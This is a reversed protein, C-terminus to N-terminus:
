TPTDNEFGGFGERTQPRLLEADRLDFDRHVFVPRGKVLTLLVKGDRPRETLIDRDVVTIDALMGPALAGTERELHNAYAAGWTYADIAATPSLSESGFPEPYSSDRVVACDIQVLPSAPTVAWDSSAALLAGRDCLSRFPYQRAARERGLLQLLLAATDADQSASAPQVVAVVGLRGFRALDGARVLQLHAIQHRTATERHRRASECADLCESVARDGVAHFHVSLGAADLADVAEDLERPELLSFRHGTEGAYNLYPEHLSATRAECVGDHMIKVSGIRWSGAAAARREVLEAVQETGRGTDWPVAASVRATLIQEAALDAYAALVEDTAWADQWATVGLAHLQAQSWRIARKWEACSVKALCREVLRKAAEHVVGTPIGHPDRDIRGGTPDATAATIGAEELARSNVWASHYDQSLLYVPRDAVVGDLTRRGHVGTLVRATVWGRGVLWHETAHAAAYTRLRELYQEVSGEPGLWCHKTRAIGATPPHVHADQFGPLVLCGPVAIPVFGYDRAATESTDDPWLGVIQGDAIAVTAPQSGPMGNSYVRGGVLAIRNFRSV